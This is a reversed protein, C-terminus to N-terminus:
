AAQAQVVRDGLLIKDIDLFLVLRQDKRYVQTIFDNAHSKIGTEPKDSMDAVKPLLVANVVDVVMGMVVGQSECVVVTLENETGKLGMKKRLDMVSIVAGRLNMMGLFHAPSGPIPTTDPLSIVERVSLLPIAFEESGMSFCLFRSGEQFM